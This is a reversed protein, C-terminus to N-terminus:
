CDVHGQINRNYCTNPPPMVKIIRTHGAKNPYRQAPCHFEPSLALKGATLQAGLSITTLISPHLLCASVHHFLSDGSSIVSSQVAPSHNHSLPIPEPYFQLRQPEIYVPTIFTPPSTDPFHLDPPCCSPMGCLVSPLHLPITVYSIYAELDAPKILVCNENM